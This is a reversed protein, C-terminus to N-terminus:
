VAPAPEMVMAAPVVRLAPFWFMVSVVPLRTPPLGPSMVALFRVVVPLIWIFERFLTVSAPVRLEPGPVIVILALVSPAPACAKVIFAPLAIVVVLAVGVATAILTFVAAPPVPPAASRLM